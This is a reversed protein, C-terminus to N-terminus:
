YCRRTKSNISVSIHPRHLAPFVVYELFKSFTTWRSSTDMLPLSRYGFTFSMTDFQVPSMALVSKGDFPCYEIMAYGGRDVRRVPTVSLYYGRIMHCTGLCYYMRVSLFNDRDGDIIMRGDDWVRDWNMAM